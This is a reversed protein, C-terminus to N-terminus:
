KGFLKELFLLTEKIDVRFLEFDFEVQGDEYAHVMDDGKIFLDVGKGNCIMEWCWLRPEICSMKFYVKARLDNPVTSSTILHDLQRHTYKFTKTSPTITKVNSLYAKYTESQSNLHSHHEKLLRHVKQLSQVDQSMRRETERFEKIDQMLDLNLNAINDSSLTSISDLAERALSVIENKVTQSIVKSLLGEINSFEPFEIFRLVAFVQKRTREYLTLPISSESDNRLEFSEAAIKLKLTKNESRPLINPPSLKNLIPALEAIDTISDSYKLLLSHIEFIENISIEMQFGNQSVFYDLENFEPFDDVLCIDQLFQITRHSNETIFSDLKSMYEEKSVSHNVLRQLMKAILTLTRRANKGPKKDVLIYADPTVIAPNVFRLM